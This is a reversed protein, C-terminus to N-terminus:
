HYIHIILKLKTIFFYSERVKPKHNFLSEDIQVIKGPGGLLIRTSCLKTSCVERLWQYVTCATSETVELSEAAVTVMHQRAWHHILLLWKKLPLKSKEFFSDKRLAVEKNCTPCRLRFKYLQVM